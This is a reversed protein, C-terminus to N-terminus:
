KVDINTKIRKASTHFIKAQDFVLYNPEQKEKLYGPNQPTKEKPIQM